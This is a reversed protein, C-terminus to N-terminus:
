IAEIGVLLKFLSERLSEYGATRITSLEDMYLSRNIEVMVSMVNKDKQYHKLPVITGAFPSNFAVTFGRESFFSYVFRSLEDPTHFFDTGICIDPRPYSKDAEHPLPVSSFSHCDAIIAKGTSAIAIDVATELEKHYASYYPQLESRRALPDEILLDGRSTRSYIAGMGVKSMPEQADDWFREMDVVLRSIKPTITRAKPFNFLDDTYWDTMIRLEDNIYDVLFSNQYRAPIYTSSHPINLVLCSSSGNSNVGFM